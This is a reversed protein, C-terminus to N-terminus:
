KENKGMQLHLCSLLEFACFHIKWLNQSEILQGSGATQFTKM